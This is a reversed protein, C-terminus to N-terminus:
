AGHIRPVNSGGLPEGLANFTGPVTHRHSKLERNQTRNGPSTVRVHTGEWVVLWLADGRGSYQVM